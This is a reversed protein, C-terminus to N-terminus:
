KLLAKTTIIVMEMKMTESHLNLPIEKLSFSTEKNWKQM